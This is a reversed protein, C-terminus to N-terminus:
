VLQECLTPTLRLHSERRRERLLAAFIRRAPLSQTIVTIRRAASPRLEAMALSVFVPWDKAPM